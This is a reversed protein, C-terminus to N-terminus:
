KLPEGVWEFRLTPLFPAGSGIFLILTYACLSPSHFGYVPHRLYQFYTEWSCRSLTVPTSRFCWPLPRTSYRPPEVTSPIPSSRSFIVPTSCSFTVLREVTSAFCTAPQTVSTSCFHWLPVATPQVCVKAVIDAACIICEATALRWARDM